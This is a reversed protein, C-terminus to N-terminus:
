KLFYMSPFRKADAENMMTYITEFVNDASPKSTYDGVDGFPVRHESATITMPKADLHFYGNQKELVEQMMFATAGGPVDEDLFVIRNTKKLSEVITHNIDFPLLSQVDILEVSIGQEELMKIGEEAVRVCSGYTILTIDTGESLVEPIGIPVTFEEVNDPLTEKLRYGNLCEVIIATDDSQLMTNYMGAAQVMNRPVLLYVGRLANLIMAMPSGTHWIGELRHGRTRVIMPSRQMGNSRYRLTALDDSLIPLAYILYDLYQIEAIPKLGRMAMGLGQGMISWERIGTDFIRDKGYKNQLGSFGQNVGGIDGVDEGFAYIEPRNNFQKDFFANLVEYGNKVVSDDSFVPKVEKTKLASYKTESYLHTHYANNIERSKMTLWAELESQSSTNERGLKRLLMKVTVIVERLSPNLLAKLEKISKAILEKQQSSHHLQVLIGLVDKLANKVPTQFASWAKKKANRVDKKAKAEIEDLEFAEAIGSDIMWERMQKICDYEKEWELREKTKYREHSGSTSHGQPQTCEKVHFLAPKHNNRIKEIGKQYATVLTPYDWAKLVYIDLGTNEDTSVFGSLAQSISENVTQYKIPVSIGYGDDWVSMALPVQTVAAANITEWFIGESTSADGITAFTVENGNDSFRTNKLKDNSRYKKSAMALGLARAMQGGTCSIGASINMRNKLDLWEGNEDYFPTAFHSNMQRGASFPDNNYDAYLQAFFDELKGLGLALIFTQDRYYGSRSDGNKFARAMAVQPVEKGDGFIGFKAKGTLVERRGLLSLERSECCIRYDNIIDENTLNDMVNGTTSQINADIM